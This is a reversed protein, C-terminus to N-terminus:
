SEATVRFVGWVAPLPRGTLSQLVRQQEDIEAAAAIGLAQLADRVEDYFMVMNEIV